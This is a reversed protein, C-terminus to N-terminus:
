SMRRQLSIELRRVVLSCSGTFLFYLLGITIWVEFTLYTTAMLELGQFTLEQISIASVIASDKIASIFQGALAPLIRQIAQPLVVYRMQQWWSLGLAYSAEWQEKEISQIGARIIETMYAGEYLALTLVASLFVSVQSPPACLITLIQQTSASSGRVLEDVRLFTMIQDGLFFYFIFILVLPPTNRILEVYTRGLMRKFLSKSLRFIGAVTGLLIAFLTSWLSLRITTLFGQVILNPVWRKGEADYRFLYQPIVGWNWKYHMELTIRYGIYVCAGALMVLLVADLPRIRITQKRLM